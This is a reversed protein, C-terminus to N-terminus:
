KISNAALLRPYVEHRFISGLKVGGINKSNLWALERIENRPEVVGEFDDVYYVNMTLQIQEMEAAPATFTGFYRIKSPRVFIGLEEQLERILAERPKENENQKGGPALLTNKDKSRLALLSKNQIIIGASKYMIQTQGVRM